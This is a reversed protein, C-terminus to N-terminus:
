SNRRLMNTVTTILLVAERATERIDALTIRYFESVPIGFFIRLWLICLNGAIVNGILTAVAAGLAGFSPVLLFIAIVNIVAAVALSISRLSPRGRASLGAGAVSGPNGLVIAAILILTVPIADVFERGFLIPIAWPSAAALAGGFALTILTSIRSARGLRSQDPSQAQTSFMVDRVASNFVLIVEGINVAIAYLGLQAVGALPTMLLQDLRALVMGSVSGLWVQGAYYIVRPRENKAVNATEHRVRTAAVLYVCGGLFTTAALSITATLVTLAGFAFLSAVLILQILAGSSRELAVLNWMQRGAAVGRLGAVVLAPALACGSAIMLQSLETDGASLTGALAAIGASGALGVLVLLSLGIRVTRPLGAVNRAIFYTLAEPLGLTLVAVAFMLPATAAAVEGRGSLGLGHALIPQTVLAALPTVVNGLTTVAIGRSNSM